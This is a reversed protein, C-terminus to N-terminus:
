KIKKYRRKNVGVILDRGKPYGIFLVGKSTENPKSDTFRGFVLEGKKNKYWRLNWRRTENTEKTYEEGFVTGDDLITLTLIQYAKVGYGLDDFGEWVFTGLCDFEAEAEAETETETTQIKSTEKQNCSIVFCFCVFGITL